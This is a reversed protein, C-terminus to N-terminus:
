LGPAIMFKSIVFPFIIVIHCHRLYIRTVRGQQLTHDYSLLRVLAQEHVAM